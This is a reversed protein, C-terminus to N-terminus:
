IQLIIVMMTYKFFFCMYSKYFDLSIDQKEPVVCWKNPQFNIEKFNEYQYLPIFLNVDTKDLYKEYTNDM